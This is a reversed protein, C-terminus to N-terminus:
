KPEHVNGTVNVRKHYLFISGFRSFRRCFISAKAVKRPDETAKVANAYAVVAKKWAEKDPELEM